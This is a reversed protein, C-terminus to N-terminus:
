SPILTNYLTANAIIINNWLCAVDFLESNSWSEILFSISLAIGFNQLCIGTEGVFNNRVAKLMLASLYHLM